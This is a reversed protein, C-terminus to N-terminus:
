EGGGSSRRRRAQRLIQDLEEQDTDTDLQVWLPLHDSLQYTLANTKMASAPYLAAIGAEGGVFFDLVGAHNTFCKSHIPYHLIQDYRRDKTLNSGYSMGRLSDPMRLGKSTIAKFLDDDVEPINFDGMLIIDKDDTYRENRRKEVWEALLRLPAIRSKANKGWRIHVTLLVFDFSGASFSAMYPARWWSQKAVYEETTGDKKRPPDAEAALGTFAVARKDYLYAIREDNGGPDAIYDSYVIHWYPGLIRLVRALDGLNDRLETVAILDFQGVIEAIYHVSAELRPKKGFERINWTALNLTEDLKSPPIQALTIRRKLETLGAAIEPTVKGHHM